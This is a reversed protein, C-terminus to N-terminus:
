RTNEGVQIIMGRSRHKKVRNNVDLFFFGKTCECANDHFIFLIVRVRKQPRSSLPLLLCLTDIVKSGKRREVTADEAHLVREM